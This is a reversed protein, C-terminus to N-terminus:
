HSNKLDSDQVQKRLHTVMLDTIRCRGIDYLEGDLIKELVSAVQLMSDLTHLKGLANNVPQLTIVLGETSNGSFKDADGNVPSFRCNKSTPTVSLIYNKEFGSDQLLLYTQDDGYELGAEQAAHAINKAAFAGENKAILYFTIDLVGSEKSRKRIIGPQPSEIKNSVNSLADLKKLHVTRTENKREEIADKFNQAGSSSDEVVPIETALRSSDIAVVASLSGGQSAMQPQHSAAVAQVYNAESQKVVLSGGEHMFLSVSEPQQPQERMDSAMPAVGLTKEAIKMEAIAKAAIIDTEVEAVQNPMHSTAPILTLEKDTKIRIRAFLGKKKKVIKEAVKNEKPQKQKVKIDVQKNENAKSKASVIVVSKPQEKVSTKTEYESINSLVSNTEKFLAVTNLRSQKLAVVEDKLTKNLCHPMNILDESKDSLIKNKKPINQNQDTKTNQNEKSNIQSKLEPELGLQHSVAEPLDIPVIEDHVQRHKDDEVIQKCFADVHQFVTDARSNVSIQNNLEAIEHENLDLKVDNENLSNPNLFPEINAMPKSRHYQRRRRNKNSRGFWYLILLLFLGAGALVWRLSDIDNM